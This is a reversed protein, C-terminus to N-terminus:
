KLRIESFVGYQDSPHLGDWMTNCCVKSQVSANKGLVENVLIFDIRRGSLVNVDDLHEYIDEHKENRRKGYHKRINANELGNWTYGPNKADARFSDSYGAAILRRMEPSDIENNFDGMLILPAGAPVKEKLFVILKEIEDRRWNNDRELKAVAAALEADTYNFKKKLEALRERTELTDAPSAHVHTVAVYVDREGARMKALLVQTADETHFSLWNWVFGGGGLHKRGAYELRLEKRALIADGERLNWPLGVRGIRVGSVGVHYIYDYGLDGALREVYDPIFNAENLGIVDPSLRKLEALLVQYRGERIEPTEYEGMKLTGKYDLGSWINITVVKLTAGTFPKAEKKACSVDAVLAGAALCLIFVHLVKM